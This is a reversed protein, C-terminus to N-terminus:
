TDATPMLIGSTAKDNVIQNNFFKVLVASGGIVIGTTGSTITGTNIVAVLNGDCVGDSAVNDFAIGASSATHTNYIRNGRILMRLAAGTVHVLGNAATASAIMENFLIRTRVVAATVKIGDTVNHTETGTVENGIFNFDDAGAGVTIGIASKLAAGKALSIYNGSFVAGAATVTIASTIGNAGDCLLRLGTFTCNAAAVAWNSGTATWSFAPSLSQNPTPYGVVNTGAVLNDLMHGDVVNEAHGPLVVVYDGRGARCEALGAALTPLIVGGVGIQDPDGSQVGLSCVYTVRASPPIGLGMPVAFAGGETGIWPYPDFIPLNAPM